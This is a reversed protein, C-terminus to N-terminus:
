LDELKSARIMLETLSVSTLMNVIPLYVTPSEVDPRAPLGKLNLFYACKQLILREPEHILWQLRDAPLALLVLLRPVMTKARLEEYNKGSLVFPIKGEDNPAANFSAKLQVEIRPSYSSSEPLLYGKGAVIADVGDSDIHPVTVSFSAEAAVAHLYALSLESEVQNRTLM